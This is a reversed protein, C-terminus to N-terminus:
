WVFHAGAAAWVPHMSAMRVNTLDEARWSTKSANSSTLL